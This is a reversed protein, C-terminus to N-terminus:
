SLETETQDEVLRSLTDKYSSYTAPERIKRNDRARQDIHKKKASVMGRARGSREDASTNM